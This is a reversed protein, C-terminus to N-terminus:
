QYHKKQNLGRGVKACPDVCKKDRTEIHPATHGTCFWAKPLTGLVWLILLSLLNAVSAYSESLCPTLAWSGPLVSLVPCIHSRPGGRSAPSCSHQRTCPCNTHLGACRVCRSKLWRMVDPTLLLWLHRSNWVSHPSGRSYLEEAEGEMSETMSINQTRTESTCTSTGLAPNPM